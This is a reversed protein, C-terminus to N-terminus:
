PRSLLPGGDENLVVIFGSSATTVGLQAKVDGDNDLFSLTPGSTEVSGPTALSESMGLIARRDGDEDLLVLSSGRLVVDNSGCQTATVLLGGLAVCLFTLYLRRYASRLARLQAELSAVRDELAGGQERTPM